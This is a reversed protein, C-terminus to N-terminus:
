TAVSEPRLHDRELYIRREVIGREVIQERARPGIMTRTCILGYERPTEPVKAREQVVLQDPEHVKGCVSALVGEKEIWRDIARMAAASDPDFKYAAGRGQRPAATTFPEV